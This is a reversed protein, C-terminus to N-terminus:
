HCGPAARSQASTARSDPKQNRDSPHPSPNRVKERNRDLRLDPWRATRSGKTSGSSPRSPLESSVWCRVWSVASSASVPAQFFNETQMHDCAPSRWAPEMFIPAREKFVYLLKM